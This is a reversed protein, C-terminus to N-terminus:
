GRQRAAEYMIISTAIAANLSEAKGRMPIKILCNALSMLEKSVGNAENGIVIAFDKKFDVEYIYNEGELSTTYVEVGEDRLTNVFEIKNDTYFTPVHFISGMTSRIVKPNYVDVCGETMIVGSSKFADATRIITGLNGPDQLGDLIIIFKNEVKLIQEISTSNIKVVALIGQPNETDAVERLLNASVHITEYRKKQILEFLEGGGTSNLLDDSILIYSINGNSHICEEVIKVGEILFLGRNYREKKKYLSKVEKLIPNSSSTIEKM